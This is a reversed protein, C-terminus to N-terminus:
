TLVLAAITGITGVERIEIGEIICGQTVTGIPAYINRIGCRKAEIMISRLFAQSSYLNGFLDCGGFVISDAPFSADLAASYIAVATAAGVYNEPLDPTCQPIFLTLDGELEFVKRAYTAAAMIFERQKDPVGYILIKGCGVRDIRAEVHFSLAKQTAPDAYMSRVVGPQACWYRALRKPSGLIDVIDEVDYVCKTSMDQEECLCYHQILRDCARELDRCSEAYQSVILDMGAPTIEFKKPSLKNDKMTNPLLKGRLINEMEDQTYPDIHIIYFRDRLPASIKSLNNATAMFFFGSNPIECELFADYFGSNSDMLTLLVDLANADAVKDIENIVFLLGSSGNILRNQVPLGPRANSYIRSTGHFCDSDSFATGDFTCKPMNLTKAFCDTLATKGTGPPGVLLIGQKPFKGTHRIQAVIKLLEEKVDMLGVINEELIARTEDIAPLNPVFPAWDISLLTHISKKAHRSGEGHGTREITDIEADVRECVWAPFAHECVNYFTKVDDYQYPLRYTQSKLKQVIVEFLNARMISKNKKVFLGLDDDELSEEEAKRFVASLLEEVHFQGNDFHGSFTVQLDKEGLWEFLPFLRMDDAYWTVVSSDDESFFILDDYYARCCGSLLPTGEFFIDTETKLTFLTSM